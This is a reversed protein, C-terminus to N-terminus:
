CPGASTRGGGSLPRHPELFELLPEANPDMTYWVFGGWTDVRLEKLSVKGCPNGQPYSEPDPAARECGTPSGTTWLSWATM